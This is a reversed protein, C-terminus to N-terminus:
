VSASETADGGRWYKVSPYVSSAVVRRYKNVWLSIPRDVCCDPIPASPQDCCTRCQAFRLRLSAAVFEFAAALSWLGIRFRQAATRFAAALAATAAGM